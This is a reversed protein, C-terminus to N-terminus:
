QYQLNDGKATVSTRVTEGEAAYGDVPQKTIKLAAPISLKATQSTVSNGYRDTVVCYVKRGSYDNDMTMSYTSGNISSKYFKEQGPNQLYWQYQVGDGQASLTVSAIQGAQAYGNQPQTTIKLTTQAANASVPVMTLIIVFCLLLATIRKRM